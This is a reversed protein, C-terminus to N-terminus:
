QSDAVTWTPDDPREGTAAYIVRHGMSVAHDAIREYYRGLLAVDVAAEVGHSWTEDLLVQFQARRLDDMEQDTAALDRALTLNQNNLAAGADAVMEEAIEAMRAFNDRLQDPVAHEPYRMRAIKAVHAALDGMRSLEACMKLATVITRLDAGMPSFQVLLHYCRDEIEAVRDDIRADESIVQEAIHLDAELLARTANRVATGGLESTHVLETVVRRLQSRYSERM